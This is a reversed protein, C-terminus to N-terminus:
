RRRRSTSVRKARKGSKTQATRATKKSQIETRLADFDLLVKPKLALLVDRGVLAVRNPNIKVFPSDQWDPVCYLKTTLAFVKGQHSSLQVSLTKAIYFYPQNLHRSIEYYDDEEPHVLNEARLFDYDIFSHSAGSDFDCVIKFTNAASELRMPITPYFDAAVNTEHWHSASEEITMHDDNIFVFPFKGTRQSTEVHQPGLPLNKLTEGAALVEGNVVVLWAANRKSFQERVWLANQERLRMQLAGREKPSLRRYEELTLNEGIFQLPTSSQLSRTDLGREMQFRASPKTQKITRLTDLVLSMTAVDASRLEANIAALMTEQSM